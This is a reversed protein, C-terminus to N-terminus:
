DGGSSSETIRQQLLSDPQIEIHAPTSETPVGVGEDSLHLPRAPDTEVAIRGVHPERNILYPSQNETGPVDVHLSSGDDFQWRLRIRGPPTGEISDPPRGIAQEVEAYTRGRLRGFGASETTFRRGMGEIYNGSGPPDEVPYVWNGEAHAAELQSRARTLTNIHEDLFRLPSGENGSETLALTEISDLTSRAAAVETM